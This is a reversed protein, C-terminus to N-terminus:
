QFGRGGTPRVVLGELQRVKGRSESGRCVGVGGRVECDGDGRGRGNTEVVIAALVTVGIAVDLGNDEIFGVTV